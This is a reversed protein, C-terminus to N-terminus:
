ELENQTQINGSTLVGELVRGTRVFISYKGDGDLDGIAISSAEGTGEPCQAAGCNHYFSYAYYFDMTPAWGLAIWTPGYPSDSKDFERLVEMINYKVSSPMRGSPTYGTPAPLFHSKGRNEAHFYSSAGKYMNKVNTIAEVNKARLMYDTFRPIAIAALIGLLAVVIMLEVLTFGHAARARRVKEPVGMGDFNHM